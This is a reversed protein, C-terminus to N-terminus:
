AEILVGQYGILGNFKRLPDVKNIQWNLGDLTFTDNVKIEDTYYTQIFRNLNTSLGAPSDNNVPVQGREHAIRCKIPIEIPTGNPDPILGGFGDDVLADQRNIVISSENEKINEKFM